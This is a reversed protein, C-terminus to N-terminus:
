FKYGFRVSGFHAEMNNRFIQTQYGLMMSFDPTFQFNVGTGIVLYDQGPTQNGGAATFPANILSVSTGNNHLNQREYSLRFQPTITAWNTSIKKSTSWGVRTVLSEFTQRAFALAALGGGTESYGDISGHLYDAGIFPGTVLTNNQFRFNYGTNFQVSNTYATTSGSASTFGFGPNRSTGMDYDGFSYLLSAWVNKRAYALYTSLAPGELNVSGLGGTYTQQSQLFSLAFGLTLGRSLHREIGVGSAWSDIQVGAQSSIPSLKVNGYNVTAFAEWQRSRQIRQAIPNKGPGDGQGTVVGEDMSSALSDAADEEGRGARLMFLHNNVDNTVTQNAALVGQNEANAFALGFIQASPRSLDDVVDFLTSSPVIEDVSNATGLGLIYTGSTPLTFTNIQVGALGNSGVLTINNTGPGTLTAFGGDLGGDTNNFFSHITIVEGAYGTFSQYLFSADTVGGSLSFGSLSGATLGLSVELPALANLSTGHENSILTQFSGVINAGTGVISANGGLNTWGTLDGTEFGPNVLQAPAFGASLALLLATKLLSKM